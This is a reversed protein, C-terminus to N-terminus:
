FFVIPGTWFTVFGETTWFAQLCVHPDMLLRVGAAGAPLLELDLIRQLLMLLPMLVFLKITRQAAFVEDLQGVVLPVHRDVVSPFRSTRVTVADKQLQCSKLIVQPSVCLLPRVLAGTADLGKLLLFIQILVAQPVPFELLLHWVRASPAITSERCEKLQRVM